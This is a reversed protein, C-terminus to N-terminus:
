RGFGGIMVSTANVTGSSAPQGFATVTTGVSVDAATAGVEKRYTTSSSLIITQSGGNRTQVTISDPTKKLVKGSALGGGRFGGQGGQGGAGNAGQGRFGLGGSAGPAGNAGNRSGGGQAGTILPAAYVGGVFAAVVLVVCIIVTLITKSV